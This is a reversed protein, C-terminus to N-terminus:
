LSPQLPHCVPSTYGRACLPVKPQGTGAWGNSTALSFETCGPNPHSFSVVLLFGWFEATAFNITEQFCWSLCSERPTVALPSSSVLVCDNLAPM